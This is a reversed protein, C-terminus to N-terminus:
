FLHRIGLAFATQDDTGPQLTSLANFNLAANRATGYVAYVDTRRSLAYTARAAISRPTGTSPATTSHVNNQYYGIAANITPTFQYEVGAYAINDRTTLVANPNVTRGDRIGAYFTAAGLTYRAAAVLKRVYGYNGLDGTTAYATNTQDYSLAVGWGTPEYAVGVSYNAAGRRGQTSEGFGYHGELKVPGSLYTYKVSNDTYISEIQAYPEYQPARTLPFYRSLVDFQATYQRGFTLRGLRDNELGVFSLRNFFRTANGATGSDPGLGAELTFLAKTGGGLDESGRFGLRSGFLGDSKLQTLDGYGGNINRHNSRELNLDIVGYVTVSGQAQTKFPLLASAILCAPPLVARVRSKM